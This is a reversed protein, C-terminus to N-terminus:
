ETFYREQDRSDIVEYLFVPSKISCFKAFEM